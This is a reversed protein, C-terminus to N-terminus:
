VFKLIWFFLLAWVFNLIFFCFECLFVAHQTPACFLPARPMFVRPQSYPVLPCFFTRPPRASKAHPTSPHSPKHTHHISRPRAFLTAPKARQCLFATRTAYFRTALLTAPPRLCFFARYFM